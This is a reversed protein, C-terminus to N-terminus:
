STNQWRCCLILMLLFLLKFSTSPDLGKSSLNGIAAASNGQVESSPSNTLPILVELIGMELLQGKLEDVTVSNFALRHSVFHVFCCLVYRKVGLCSHLGDDRETREDPSRSSTAQHVACCGCERDCVQEEGLEGCSQTTNLYCPM